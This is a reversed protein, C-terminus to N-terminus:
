LMDDKYKHGKETLSYVFEGAEDVGVKLLEKDVMDDIIQETFLLSAKKYSEEVEEQSLMYYDKKGLIYDDYSEVALKYVSDCWLDLLEQPLGVDISRLEETLLQGYHEGSKINHMM